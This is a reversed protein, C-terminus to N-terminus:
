KDSEKRVSEWESLGENLRNDTRSVLFKLVELMM